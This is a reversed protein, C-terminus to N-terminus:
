ASSYNTEVTLQNMQSTFTIKRRNMQSSYCKHRSVLRNELPLFFISGSSSPRFNWQPCHSLSLSLSLSLSVVAVLRVNCLSYSRCSSDAQKTAKTNVREKRKRTSPMLLAAFQPLFPSFCSAILPHFVRMLDDTYAASAVVVCCCRCCCCSSSGSTSCGYWNCLLSLSFIYTLALFLALVQPIRHFNLLRM